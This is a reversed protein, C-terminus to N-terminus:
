QFKRGIQKKITNVADLEKQTVHDRSLGDSEFETMLLAYAAHGNAFGAELDTM